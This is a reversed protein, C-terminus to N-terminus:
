PSEHVALAQLDNKNSPPDNAWSRHACSAINKTAIQGLGLRQRAGVDAVPDLRKSRIALLGSTREFAHPMSSLLGAVRQPSRRAMALATLSGACPEVHRHSRQVMASALTGLSGILLAVDCGLAVWADRQTDWPADPISLKLHRALAAQVAPGHAPLASLTGGLQVALAAASSADLRQLARRLPAVTVALAPQQALATMCTEVYGRTVALVQQTILAMTTDILDQKTCGYHVFAVAAPNFLGVTDRLSKILPVALSGCSASDRVIRAADFLEVKCTDVISVAADAPIVGHEAQAQALAAEVRLMAAVFRQAGFSELVEPAYLFDDLVSSM